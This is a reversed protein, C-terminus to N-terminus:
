IGAGSLALDRSILAYAILSTILQSKPGTTRAEGCVHLGIRELLELPLSLVVRDHSSLIYKDRRMEKCIGGKRGGCKPRVAGEQLSASLFRSPAVMKRHAQGIELGHQAQAPPADNPTDVLQFPSPVKLHPSRLSTGFGHVAQCAQLCLNWLAPLGPRGRASEM